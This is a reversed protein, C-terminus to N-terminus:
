QEVDVVAVTRCSGCGGGYPQCVLVLDMGPSAVGFGVLLAVQPM